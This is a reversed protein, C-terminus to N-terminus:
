SDAEPASQPSFRPSKKGGPIQRWVEPCVEIKEGTRLRAEDCSELAIALDDQAPHLYKMTTGINAHGAILQLTKVNKIREAAKSIV